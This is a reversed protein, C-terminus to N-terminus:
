RNFLNYLDKNEKYLKTKELLSMKNFDEKTITSKFNNHQFNPVFDKQQKSVIEAIGKIYNQLEEGDKDKINLYQALESNLGNDKLIKVINDQRIKEESKTKYERLELLENTLNLYKGDLEKYSINLKEYEETTKYKKDYDTRIKESENNIIEKVGKLQDENLNLETLEM